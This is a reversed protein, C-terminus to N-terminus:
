MAWRQPHFAAYAAIRTAATAPPATSVSIHRADPSLPVQPDPLPVCFKTDYPTLLVAHFALHDLENRRNRKHGDARGLSTAGLRYELEPGVSVYFDNGKVTGQFQLSVPINFTWYRFWTEGATIPGSVIDNAGQVSTATVSGVVTADALTVKGTAEIAGRVTGNAVQVRSARIATGDKSSASVRASSARVGTNEGGDIAANAGGYIVKVWGNLDLNGNAALEIASSACDNTTCVVLSELRMSVGGELRFVPQGGTLRSGDVTFYFGVWSIEKEKLIGSIVFGGPVEANSVAIPGDAHKGPKLTKSGLRTTRDWDLTQGLVIVNGAGEDEILEHDFEITYTRSPDKAALKKMYNVAERLTIELDTPDVTDRVTTVVLSPVDAKLWFSGRSPLCKLNKVKDGRQELRFNTFVQDYLLQTYSDSKAGFVVSYDDMGEDEAHSVATVYNRDDSQLRVNHGGGGAVSEPQLHYCPTLSPAAGTSGEEAPNSGRLWRPGFKVEGVENTAFIEGVSYGDATVLTAIREADAPLDTGNEWLLSNLFVARAPSAASVAKGANRFFTTNVFTGSVDGTLAVADGTCAGVTSDVLVLKGSGSVANVRFAQPAAHVISNLLQVDVTGYGTASVASAAGAGEFWCSTFLHSVNRGESAFSSNAFKVYQAIVNVDAPVNSVYFYSRPGGEVGLNSRETFTGGYVRVGELAEPQANKLQIDFNGGWFDLRLHDTWGYPVEVDEGATGYRITGFTKGTYGAAFTILSDVLKGDSVTMRQEFTSAATGPAAIVTGGALEVTGGEVLVVNKLQKANACGRLDLNVDALTVKASDKVTIVSTANEGPRLTGNTLTVDMQNVFNIGGESIMTCTKGGLDITFSAPDTYQSYDVFEEDHDFRLKVTCGPTTLAKQFAGALTAYGNTVTGSANIVHWYKGDLPVNQYALPITEVHAFTGGWLSINARGDPDTGGEGLQNSCMVFDTDFTGNGRVEVKASGTWTTGEDSAGYAIRGTVTGMFDDAFLLAVDGFSPDYRHYVCAAWDNTEARISTTGHVTTRGNLVACACTVSGNTGADLTVDALDLNGCAAVLARLGEGDDAYALTGNKMTAVAGKEVLCGCREAGSTGNTLTLTHGMLNVTVNANSPFAFGSDVCDELVVIEDKLHKRIKLEVAEAVSQAYYKGIQCIVPRQDEAEEGETEGGEAGLVPSGAAALGGKPVFAALVPNLATVPTDPEIDPVIKIYTDAEGERGVVVARETCVGSPATRRFDLGRIEAMKGGAGMTASGGTDLTGNIILVKNTYSGDGMRLRLAGELEVKESSLDFTGDTTRGEKAANEQILPWNFTIKYGGDESILGIDAVAYAIAERLSILGDYRDVVDRDTTVALSPNELKRVPAVDEGALASLFPVLVLGFLALRKMDERMSIM